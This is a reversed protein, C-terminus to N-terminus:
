KKGFLLRRMSTNGDSVRRDGGTVQQLDELKLATFQSFEPNTKMQKTM